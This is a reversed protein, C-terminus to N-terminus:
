YWWQFWLQNIRLHLKKSPILWFISRVESKYFGNEYVRIYMHKRGNEGFYIRKDYLHCMLRELWVPNLIQFAEISEPWYISYSLFVFISRLKFGNELNLRLIDASHCSSQTWLSFLFVHRRIRLPIFVSCYSRTYPLFDNNFCRRYSLESQGGVLSSSNLAHLVSPDCRM